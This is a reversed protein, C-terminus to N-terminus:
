RSPRSAPQASRFLAPMLSRLRTVSLNNNLFRRCPVEIFHYACAAAVLSMPIAMWALTAGLPEQIEVTLTLAKFWLTLVIGHVMYISYSIEGLYILPRTRLFRVGGQRELSAIAFLLSALVPVAIWDGLNWHAIAVLFMALGFTIGPGWTGLDWGRSVRYLAVGILFEPIIRAIGFDFTLFTLQRGFISPTAAYVVFFLAFAAALMRAPSLRLTLLALPFFSLYAFWEASISWSVYNFSLRPEVGWAHIMLLNPLVSSWSYAEPEGPKIGVTTGATVYAAVFFFTALHLPYLRAFRKKIFDIVSFRGTEIASLYVHAMIFGSLVFFFDVGLKGKEIFYTRSEHDIGLENAFHLTLVWFAALFRLSTLTEIHSAHPEQSPRLIRM